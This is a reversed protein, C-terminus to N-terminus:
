GRTSQSVTARGVTAAPAHQRGVEAAGRLKLVTGVLVALLVGWVALVTAGLAYPLWEGVLGFPAPEAPYLEAAQAVDITAAAEAKGFGEGGAYRAGITQKGAQAPQYALSATGTSDTTATGLSAERPGLIDVRQYFSVERGGLPKGDPATLTASITLQGKARGPSAGIVKLVPAPQPPEAGSAAAPALAVVLALLGLVAASMAWVRLRM